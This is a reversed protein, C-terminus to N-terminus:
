KPFECHFLRQVSFINFTLLLRKRYIDYRHHIHDSRQINNKIHFSARLYLVLYLGEVNGLCRQFGLCGRRKGGVGTRVGGNVDWSM